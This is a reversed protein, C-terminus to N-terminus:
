DHANGEARIVNPEGEKELLIDAYPNKGNEKIWEDAEKIGQMIWERVQEGRKMCDQSPRKPMDEGSKINQAAEIIEALDDKKYRMDCGCSPCFNERIVTRRGCRNCIFKKGKGWKPEGWEDTGRFTSVTFGKWEGPQREFDEKAKAYGAEFGQKFGSKLYDQKLQEAYERRLNFRGDSM